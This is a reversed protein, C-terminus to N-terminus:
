NPPATDHDLPVMSPLSGGTLMSAPPLRVARNYRAAAENFRQTAVRVRNEAGILEAQKDLSDPLDRYHAEVSGQRAKQNAVEAQHQEVEAYLDNLRSTTSSYSVAGAVLILVLIGGIITLMRQRRNKQRIAAITEARREEQLKQHARDIFDAPIGVEAGVERMEELTLENRAKERLREATAIIDDVDDYDVTPDPPSSM